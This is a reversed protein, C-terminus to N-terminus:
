NKISYMKITNKKGLDELMGVWGVELKEKKVFYKFFDWGFLLFCFTSFLVLWGILLFFVFCFGYYFIMGFVPLGNQTLCNSRLRPGAQIITLIGTVRNINHNGTLRM